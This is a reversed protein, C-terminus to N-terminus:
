GRGLYAASVLLEVRTGDGSTRQTAEDVLRAVVRAAAPDDLPPASFPGIRVILGAGGAEAELSAVESALDHQFLSEVALQLDDVRDVPLEFRSALGGLVLRGVSRFGDAAPFEVAIRDALPPLSVSM